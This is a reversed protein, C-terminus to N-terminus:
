CNIVVVCYWPFVRILLSLNLQAGGPRIKELDNSRRHALTFRTLLERKLKHKVIPHSSPLALRRDFGNSDHKVDM